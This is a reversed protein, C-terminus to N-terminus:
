KFNRMRHHHKAVNSSLSSFNLHILRIFSEAHRPRTILVVFIEGIRNEYQATLWGRCIRARAERPEHALLGNVGNELNNVPVSHCATPMLLRNRQRPLSALRIRIIHYMDINVSVCLPRMEM